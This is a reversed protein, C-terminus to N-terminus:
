GENTLTCNTITVNSIKYAEQLTVLAAIKTPEDTRRCRLIKMVTKELKRAAQRSHGIQIMNKM